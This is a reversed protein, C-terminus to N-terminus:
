DAEHSALKTSLERIRHSMKKLLGVALLDAQLEVDEFAFERAGDGDVLDGALIRNPIKALCGPRDVPYTPNIGLPIGGIGRSGEIWGPDNGPFDRNGIGDVLIIEDPVADIQTRDGFDDGIRDGPCFFPDLLKRITQHPVDTGIIEQM